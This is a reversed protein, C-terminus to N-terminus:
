DSIHTPVDAPDIRWYFACVKNGIADLQTIAAHNEVGDPNAIFVAPGPNSSSESLDCQM